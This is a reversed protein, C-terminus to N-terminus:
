QAVMPPPEYCSLPPLEADYREVEVLCTHASTAQALKSTGADYTLMNPNGHKDLTGVEGPVLPDYWAGTAMQVVGQRVADSLVAGALCAGRENFVRLIDGDRVGRAAADAPHMRLPERGRIKAEQSLLGHDYQSHLKTSPQNSILHLPFRATKESGLWERPELWSPHAPCDDYGFGAITESYLEIRGSPTQLPHAGPDSRFDHLLDPQNGPEPLVVMGDRWFTEFDPLAMGAKAVSQCAKDYLLRIWGEEDRDETFGQKVNLRAAL